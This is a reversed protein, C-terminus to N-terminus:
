SVANYHSQGPPPVQAALSSRNANPMASAMIRSFVNRVHQRAAEEALVANKDIIANLVALREPVSAEPFLPIIHTIQGMSDIWNYSVSPCEFLLAM